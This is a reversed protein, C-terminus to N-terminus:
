KAGDTVTRGQGDEAREGALLSIIQQKEWSELEALSPEDYSM